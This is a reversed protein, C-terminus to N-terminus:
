PVIQERGANRGPRFRHAEEHDAKGDRRKEVPRSGIAIAALRDDDEGAQEEDGGPKAARKGSRQRGQQCPADDLARAGPRAHRDGEGPSGARTGLIDDADPREREGPEVFMGHHKGQIEELTYGIAQLFNDNATVITGDLEFEITAQSKNIAARQGRLDWLLLAPITATETDDARYLPSRFKLMFNGM